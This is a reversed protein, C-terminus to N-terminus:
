IVGDALIKQLLKSNNGEPVKENNAFSSSFYCGLFIFTILFRAMFNM